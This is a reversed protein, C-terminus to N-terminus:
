CLKILVALGQETSIAPLPKARVQLMEVPYAEQESGPRKLPFFITREHKKNHKLSLTEQLGAEVGVTYPGLAEHRSPRFNVLRAM